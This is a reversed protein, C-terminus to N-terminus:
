RGSEEFRARIYAAIEPVINKISVGSTNICLDYGHMDGWKLASIFDHNAARARDVQKCKKEYDRDTLADEGANARGRCRAIKSPM